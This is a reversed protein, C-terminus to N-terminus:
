ARDGEYRVEGGYNTRNMDNFLATFSASREAIFLRGLIRISIEEFVCRKETAQVKALLCLFYPLFIQPREILPYFWSRDATDQDM